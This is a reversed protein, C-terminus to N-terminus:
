ISKIIIMVFSARTIADIFVSIELRGYIHIYTEKFIESFNNGLQRHVFIIDESNSWKIVNDCFYM